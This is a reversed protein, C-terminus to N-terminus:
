GRFNFFTVLGTVGSTINYRVTGSGCLLVGGHCWSVRGLFSFVFRFGVGVMSDYALTVHQAAAYFLAVREKFFIHLPRRRRLALSDGNEARKDAVVM